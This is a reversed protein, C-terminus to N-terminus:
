PRAEDPAYAVLALESFAEPWVRALTSELGAGLLLKGCAYAQKETRVFGCRELLLRSLSRFTFYHLHGEDYLDVPEGGYTTLGEDRSATSPFRGLLLQARRTYKALNPTDIYVFGGPKLLRRVGRMAALPDILHEILAIMIVADYIGAEGEGAREADLQRVQVRPDSLNERIGSVRALSIDGLDYTEIGLDLGLLARAVAGDGAGLELIRGGKFHRPVFSVAAEFRDLPRAKPTLVRLAHGQAEGSYKREYHAQLADTM